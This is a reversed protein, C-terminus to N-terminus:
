SAEGHNTLYRELTEAREAIVSLADYQSEVRGAVVFPGPGLAAPVPSVSLSLRGLFPASSTPATASFLVNLMAKLM